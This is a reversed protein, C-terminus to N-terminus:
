AQGSYFAGAHQLEPQTTFTFGALHAPHRQCRRCLLSRNRLGSAPVGRYANCYAAYKRTPTPSRCGIFKAVPVKISHRQEGFAIVRRARRGPGQAGVGIDAGGSYLNGQDVVAGSPQGHGVIGVHLRALRGDFLVRDGPYLHLASRSRFQHVPQSIGESQMRQRKFVDEVGALTGLQLGVVPLQEQDHVQGAELVAPDRQVLDTHEQQVVVQYGKARTGPIGKCRNDFPQFGRARPDALLAYVVQEIRNDVQHDVLTKRHQLM